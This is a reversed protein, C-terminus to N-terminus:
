LLQTTRGSCGAGSEERSMHGAPAIQNSVSVDDSPNSTNSHYGASHELSRPVSSHVCSCFQHTHISKDPGSM